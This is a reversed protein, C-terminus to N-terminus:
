VRKLFVYATQAQHFFWAFGKKLLVFCFEAYHPFTQCLVYTTSTIEDLM